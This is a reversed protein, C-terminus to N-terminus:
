PRPRHVGLYDLMRWRKKIGETAEARERRDEKRGRNKLVM